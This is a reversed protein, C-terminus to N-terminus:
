QNSHLLRQRPRSYLGLGNQRCLKPAVHDDHLTPQLLVSHKFVPTFRRNALKPFEECFNWVNRVFRDEAKDVYGGIERDAAFSNLSACALGALCLGKILSQKTLSM